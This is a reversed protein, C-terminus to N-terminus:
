PGLPFRGRTRALAFRPIPFPPPRPNLFPGVRPFLFAQLDPSASGAVPSRSRGTPSVRVPVGPTEPVLGRPFAFASEACATTGFRQNWARVRYCFLSDLEKVGDGLVPRHIVVIQGGLCVPSFHKTPGSIASLFANFGAASLLAPSM